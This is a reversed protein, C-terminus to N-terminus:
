VICFCKGRQLSLTVYECCPTGILFNIQGQLGGFYLFLVKFVLVM